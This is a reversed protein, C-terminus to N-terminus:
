ILMDTMMQHCKHSSFVKPQPAKARNLDALRNCPIESTIATPKHHNIGLCHVCLQYKDELSSQSCLSLDEM